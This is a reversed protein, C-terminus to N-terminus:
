MVRTGYSESRSLGGQQLPQYLQTNAENKKAREAQKVMTWIYKYKESKGMTAMDVISDQLFRLLKFKNVNHTVRSDKRQGFVVLNVCEIAETCNKPDDDIVGKADGDGSRSTRGRRGGSEVRQYAWAPCEMSTTNPSIRMSQSAPKQTNQIAVATHHMRATHSIFRTPLARTLRPTATKTIAIPIAATPGPATVAATHYQRSSFM